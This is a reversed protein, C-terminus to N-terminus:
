SYNKSYPSDNDPKAQSRVSVLQQKLLIM